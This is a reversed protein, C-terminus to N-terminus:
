VCRYEIKNKLKNFLENREVYENCRWIINDCLCLRFYNNLLKEAIHYSLNTNNCINEISTGKVDCVLMIDHSTKIQKNKNTSGNNNSQKIECKSFDEIINRIPLPLNDYLLLNTFICLRLNNIKTYKYIYSILFKYLTPEGGCITICEILNKHKDLIEKLENCSIKKYNKLLDKYNCYKCKMNCMEVFLVLSTVGVPMDFRCDYYINM